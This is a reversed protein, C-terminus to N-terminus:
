NIPFKITPLSPPVMFSQSVGKHKQIGSRHLYERGTGTGTEGECM